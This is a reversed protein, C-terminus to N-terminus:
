WYYCQIEVSVETVESVNGFEYFRWSYCQIEATVESVSGFGCFRLLLGTNRGYSRFCESIFWAGEETRILGCVSGSTERFGPFAQKLKLCCDFM